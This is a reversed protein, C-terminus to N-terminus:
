DTKKRNAAAAAASRSTDKVEVDSKTEKNSIENMRRTFGTFASLRFQTFKQHEQRLLSVEKKLADLDRLRLGERLEIEKEKDTAAALDKSSDKPRTEFFYHLNIYEKMHQAPDDPMVNLTAIM